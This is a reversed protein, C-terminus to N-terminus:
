APQDFELGQTLVFLHTRDLRKISLQGACTTQIHGGCAHELQARLVRCQANFAEIQRLAQTDRDM